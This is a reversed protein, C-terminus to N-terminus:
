HKLTTKMEQAIQDFAKTYAGGWQKITGENVVIPGYPGGIVGDGTEDVRKNFVLNGSRDWVSVVDKALARKTPVFHGMAWAWESYVVVVADVQLDACLKKAVAPTLKAAIVDDNNKSFVAFPTGNVKPLMLGLENKVGLGRYGPNNIFGSAKSVRMFGSLKNETATVLGALTSNILETAKANGATGSVMDGWNAVSLSVLAVKNIPASPKKTAAATVCGALSVVLVLWLFLGVAKNGM